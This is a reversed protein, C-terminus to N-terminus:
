LAQMSCLCLNMYVTYLDVFQTAVAGEAEKQGLSLEKNFSRLIQLM